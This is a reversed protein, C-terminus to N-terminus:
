TDDGDQPEDDKGNVAQASCCGFLSLMFTALSASFWSAPAGERSSPPGVSRM